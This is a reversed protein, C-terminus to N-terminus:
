KSFPPNWNPSRGHTVKILESIGAEESGYQKVYKKKILERAPAFKPHEELPNIKWDDGEKVFQNSKDSMFVKFIGYALNSKKFIIKDLGKDTQMLFSAGQEMKTFASTFDAVDEPSLSLSDISVRKMMINLKDAFSKNMITLKDDYLASHIQDMYAIRYDSSVLEAKRSPSSYTYYEKWVEEIALKDAETGSCSFLFAVISILLIQKM